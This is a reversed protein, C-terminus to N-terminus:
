PASSRSTPQATRASARRWDKAFPRQRPRCRRRTGGDADGDAYPRFIAHLPSRRRTRPRFTRRAHPQDRAHAVFGALRRRRLALKHYLRVPMTKRRAIRLDIDFVETKVEGAGGRDLDIACRWRRLVIDTLKLGGSGIEALDYDALEGLTANVYIVDGAPNVSFSDAHRTTSINSRTSCSGSCMKRASAIGRSTPSRGCGRIKSRRKARASRGFGCGCGADRDSDSGAIRVEEQQRKGQRAAKSCASCPKPSTRNGIFRAIPARGAARPAGDAGTAPTRISSMARRTPVALGDMPTIPSAAWERPRRRRRDTFRIIGAAFAFLNFLRRMALLVLV